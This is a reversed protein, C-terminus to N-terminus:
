VTIHEAQYEDEKMSSWTAYAPHGIIWWKGKNDEKYASYARTLQDYIQIVSANASLNLSFICPKWPRIRNVEESAELRQSVFNNYCKYESYTLSESLIESISLNLM